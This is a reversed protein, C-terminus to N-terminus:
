NADEKVIEGTLLRVPVLAGKYKRKMGRISNQCEGLNECVRYTRPRGSSAYDTINGSEDLIGILYLDTPMFETKYPSLSTIRWTKGQIPIM